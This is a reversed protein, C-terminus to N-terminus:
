TDGYQNFPNFFKFFKGMIKELEYQPTFLYFSYIMLFYISLIVDSVVFYITIIRRSMCCCPFKGRTLCCCVTSLKKKTKKLQERTLVEKM